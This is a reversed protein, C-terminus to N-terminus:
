SDGESPTSEVVHGCRDCVRNGTKIARDYEAETRPHPCPKNGWAERLRVAKDHQM